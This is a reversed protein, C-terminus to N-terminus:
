SLGHRVRAKLNGDDVAQRSSEWMLRRGRGWGVSDRHPDGAMASPEGISPAQRGRMQVHRLIQPRLKIGLRWKLRRRESDGM